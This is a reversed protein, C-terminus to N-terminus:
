ERKEYKFEVVTQSDTRADRMEMDKLEWVGNVKTLGGIEFEKMLKGDPGYAEALIIGGTQTDIWSRVRTYGKATPEPNRSELVKCPRGKRMKIRAEEVIRHEPWGLFERGLDALWFDAGAFPIMAQDGLLAQSPASSVANTSASGGVRTLEYRNPAGSSHTVVLREAPQSDGGLTEYVSRWNADSVEVRYRLPVRTRRGEPDRRRIWGNVELNETPRASRLDAALALGEPDSAARPALAASATDTRPLLAFTATLLLVSRIM